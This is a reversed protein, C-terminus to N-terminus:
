YKQLLAIRDELSPHTSFFGKIKKWISAKPSYIFMSELWIWKKEVEPIYSKKSIKQLASIMADRNKTLEVSWADALYEKKRSIALNILPLILLSVLYLLGWLVVLPIAWKWKSRWWSRFLIYWVTWIIWIFVNAIVMTKVDWNIIHTLEHAAVAEIEEKNLSKLLWKSFVVHSNKPDWWTAFANMNSSDMIWIKPIPLWRSICLNEVMNYLDPSQQRTIERAWTYSFIIKKQINIWIILWLLILPLSWLVTIFSHKIAEGLFIGEVWILFFIILCIFVVLPMLLVLFFIRLNNQTKSTQLWVIQM